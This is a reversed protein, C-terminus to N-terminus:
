FTIIELLDSIEKVFFLNKKEKKLITVIQRVLNMGIAAVIESFVKKFKLILIIHEKKFKSHLFIKLTHSLSFNSFM